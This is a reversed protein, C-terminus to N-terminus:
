TFRMCFFFDAFAYAASPYLLRLARERMCWKEAAVAKRAAKWPTACGAVCRQTGNKEGPRQTPLEQQLGAKMPGYVALREHYM